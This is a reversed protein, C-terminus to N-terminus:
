QSPMAPLVLVVLPVNLSKSALSMNEGRASEENISDDFDGNFVDVDGNIVDVDGNGGDVDGNGGVM